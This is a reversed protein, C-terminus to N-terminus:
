PITIGAPAMAALVAGNDGRGGGRPGALYLLTVRSDLQRPAPDRVIAGYLVPVEHQKFDLGDYSGALAVFVLGNSRRSEYYLHVYARGADTRVVLAGPEGIAVEDGDRDDRAALPELPLRDEVVDWAIGDDSGLVRIGGAVELYMLFARGGLARADIVAPRRGEMVIPGSGVRTFSGDVASARAVGVGGEAGTYYLLAGDDTAVAWPEHVFAGEWPESAAFIETGPDFALQGNERPPSRYIRRPEFLSWDVGLAGLGGDPTGGDAGGDPGADEIAGSDEPPGADEMSGADPTGADFPMGGDPRGRPAGTYFLHGGAFMGGGIGREREALTWGPPTGPLDVEDPMVFRFPGTGGHPLGAPESPGSALTSCAGLLAALAIALGRPM